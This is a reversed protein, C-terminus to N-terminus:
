SLCSSIKNAQLKHGVFSCAWAHVVLKNCRLEAQMRHFIDANVYLAAIAVHINTQVDPHLECYYDWVDARTCENINALAIEVPLYLAVTLVFSSSATRTHLMSAMNHMTQQVADEVAKEPEILYNRCNTEFVPNLTLKQEHNWLVCLNRQKGCQRQEDQSLLCWMLKSRIHFNRRQHYTAAQTSM